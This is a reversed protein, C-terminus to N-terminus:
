PKCRRNTLKVNKKYNREIEELGLKYSKFLLQVSESEYNNVRFDIYGRKEDSILECSAELLTDMSNITTITLASVASCVIDKGFKAFGAHGECEFGFIRDEGDLYFSIETM